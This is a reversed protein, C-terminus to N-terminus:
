PGVGKLDAERGCGQCRGTQLGLLKASFGNREVWVEGCEPCVTRSYRQDAMNGLYVYDLREKAIHYAQHLTSVPTPPLDMQYNPFYRSFHLPIRQDLDAVFAALERIETEGDNVGPILLNTIELHVSKALLRAIELAPRVRGACYERYFHDTWGKLDLNVGDIYPLLEQLPGPNIFGNTVLVNRLGAQKALRVTDFVYEYWVLPESYTFALGINGKAEARKALHVLEEPSIYEAAAKEQAIEWNQCFRCALNCGFTGVSLIYSGPYFHYLPKKEIPDLALATVQGYNELYIRDGQAMRVRCKGREGERLSCAQPCLRCVVRGSGSVHYLHASVERREATRLARKEESM